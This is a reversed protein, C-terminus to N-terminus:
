VKKHIEWKLGYERSYSSPKRRIIRALIPFAAIVLFENGGFFHDSFRTLDRRATLDDCIVVLM